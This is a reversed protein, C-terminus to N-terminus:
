KKKKDKYSKFPNDAKKKKEKKKYEPFTSSTRKGKKKKKKKIIGEAKPKSTEGIKDEMAGETMPKARKLPIKPEVVVIESPPEKMKIGFIALFKAFLSELLLRLKGKRLAKVSIRQAPGVPGGGVIGWKEQEAGLCSRCLRRGNWIYVRSELDRGCRECTEPVYLPTVPGKKRGYQSMKRDEDRSDQLCYPCMWQGKYQQLESAPLYM